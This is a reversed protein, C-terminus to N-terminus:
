RKPQNVNATRRLNATQAAGLSNQGGVNTVVQEAREQQFGAPGLAKEIGGEPNPPRGVSPPPAMPPATGEDVQKLYQLWHEPFVDEIPMSYLKALYRAPKAMLEPPKVLMPVFMNMGEMKRSRELTPTISLLSDNVVHIKGRWDFVEGTIVVEQKGLSSVQEGSPLEQLSLQEVRYEGKYVRPNEPETEDFWIDFSAKPAKPDAASQEKVKQLELVVAQIEDPDVLETVRPLAYNQKQLEFTVEADWRLLQAVSAIPTALRALAADKALDTAFATEQSVAGGLPKTVGTAEDTRARQAEIAKWSDSGPGPINLFSISKPDSTKYARDPRLRIDGSEGGEVELQGQYFISKYISFRVQNMTMSVLDDLLKKDPGIMEIPGLGFPNKRGRPLWTAMRISLGKHNWPLPKKILPKDNAIIYYLDLDQHELYSCKVWREGQYGSYAMPEIDDFFEPKVENKFLRYFTDYDYVKDYSVYRMTRPKMPVTGPDIWVDLPSLAEGVTQDIEVVRGDRYTEEGTSLDVSGITRVDREYKDYFRRWYTTGFLISNFWLMVYQQRTQDDLWDEKRLANLIPVRSHYLENDSDWLVDPTRQTMLALATHIKVAVLPEKHDVLGDEDTEAFFRTPTANGETDLEYQAFVRLEDITAPLYQKELSNWLEEMAEGHCLKRFEEMGTRLEKYHDFNFDAYTLPKKRKLIRDKISGKPDPNISPM